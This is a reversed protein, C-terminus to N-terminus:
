DVEDFKGNNCGKINNSVLHDKAQEKGVECRITKIWTSPSSSATLLCRWM